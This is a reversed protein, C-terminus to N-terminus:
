VCPISMKTDILVPGARHITENLLSLLADVLRDILWPKLRGPIYISVEAPLSNFHRKLKGENNGM